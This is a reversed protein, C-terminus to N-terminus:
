GVESWVKVVRPLRILLVKGNPSWAVQGILGPGNGLVRYVALAGNEEVEFLVSLKDWGATALYKGNPSFQLHRVLAQHTMDNSIRTMRSAGSMDMAPSRARSAAGLMIVTRVANVFRQRAHFPTLAVTEDSRKESLTPRETLNSTPSTATGGDVSRSITKQMDRSAVTPLPHCFPQPQGSQSHLPLVHDESAATTSMRRLFQKFFARVAPVLTSCWDLVSSTARVIRLATIRRALEAIVDALWKQGGHRVFIWRESAFWISVAALGSSTIVMAGQTSSLSAESLPGNTTSYSFQLTTATVGSFFTAVTSLNSLNIAGHQQHSSITPVGIEIFMALAGAVTDVHYGIESTLDHVYRQVPPSRFQTKYENLHVAWYRLNGEFEKMSQNVAVDTFEPFENLCDLFNKVDTALSEFQFPLTEVPLSDEALPRTRRWGARRTDNDILDPNLLVERPHRAIRRPFLSSANERFLFVINTFRERLRFASSLIGVSSGLQRAANAFNCLEIDLNEVQKQFKFFQDAGAEQVKIDALTPLEEETASLSTIDAETDSDRSVDMLQELLNALM